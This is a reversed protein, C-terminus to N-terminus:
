TTRTAQDHDNTGVDLSGHVGVNKLTVRQTNYLQVGGEVGGCGRHPHELGARAAGSIWLGNIVAGGREACRVVTPASATGLSHPDARELREVWDGFVDRGEVGGDGWGAAGGSLSCPSVEFCNGTGSPPAWRVEGPGSDAASVDISFGALSSTVSGDSVRITVNSATGIDGTTPTGSLRGRHHRLEGLGTQQRRQVDAPRRRSGICEAHFQLRQGRDRDDAAAYGLDPPRNAATVTISFPALTATASGDSVRIIINGTPNSM